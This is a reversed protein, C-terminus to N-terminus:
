GNDEPALSIPATLRKTTKLTAASALKSIVTAKTTVNGTFYLGVLGLVGGVFTAYNPQLERWHGCAVWGGALVLVAFVCLLLKRSKFGGDKLANAVHEPTLM